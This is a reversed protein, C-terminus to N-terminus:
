RIVKDDRVWESKKKKGELSIFQDLFGASIILWEGM